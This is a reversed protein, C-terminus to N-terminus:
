FRARVCTNTNKNRLRIKHYRHAVKACSVGTQIVYKGMIKVPAFTEVAKSMCPSTKSCYNTKTSMDSRLNKTLLTHVCGDNLARVRVHVRRTTSVNAYFCPTSIFCLFNHSLNYVFV